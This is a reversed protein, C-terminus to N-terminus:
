HMVVIFLIQQATANLSQGVYMFSVGFKTAYDCIPTIGLKVMDGVYINVVACCKYQVRVQGHGKRTNGFGSM